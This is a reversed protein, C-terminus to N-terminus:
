LGLYAQLVLLADGPTISKDGNADARYLSCPDTLLSTGLYHQLVLLADGPTVSGDGNVDMGAPCVATNYTGSLTLPSTKGHADDAQLYINMEGAFTVEFELPLVFTVDSGNSTDLAFSASTLDISVQSNSLVSASGPAYGTGWSMDDDDRLYVLNASKDYRVWVADARDTTENILLYLNELDYHGDVDTYELTFEAAGGSTPNASASVAAPSQSTEPYLNMSEQLAVDYGNNVINDLVARLEDPTHNEDGNVMGPGTGSIKHYYLVIWLNKAMAEDVMANLQAPTYIDADIRMIRTKSAMISQNNYGEDTTSIMTYGASLTDALVADNYAGFPLTFMFVTFGWGELLNKSTNLSTMREAQNLTTLNVHDHSHSQIQHGQSNLETLNPVTMAYAAGEQQYETVIYFSAKLGYEDLIPKLTTYNSILGDDFTLSIRGRDLAEVDTANNNWRVDDIYMAGTSVYESDVVGVDLYTVQSAYLDTATTYINQENVRWSLSESGATNASIHLHHWVNEAIIYTKTGAGYNWSGDGNRYDVQFYRDEGSITYYFTAFIIGNEDRLAALYIPDGDALLTSDIRFRFSLDVATANASTIEKQLYASNASNFTFKVSRSGSFFVSSDIEATNGTSLVASDWVTGVVDAREFGDYNEQEGASVFTAVFLLLLALAGRACIVGINDRFVFDM